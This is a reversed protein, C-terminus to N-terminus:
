PGSCYGRHWYRAFLAAPIGILVAYAAICALTWDLPEPRPTAASWLPVAIKFLLAYMLVGYLAGMTVPRHLLLRHRQALLHYGTVMATTLYYYLAAGLMATAIGGARAVDRGLVWSAISQPIRIPAVDARLAWFGAAFALDLSGVLVGGFLLWSWLPLHQSRTSQLTTVAKM